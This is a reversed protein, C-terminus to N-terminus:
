SPESKGSKKVEEPLSEFARCLDCDPTLCQDKKTFRAIVMHGRIVRLLDDCYDDYEYSRGKFNFKHLIQIMEERVPDTPM